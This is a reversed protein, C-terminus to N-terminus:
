VEVIAQDLDELYLKIMQLMFRDTKDKLTLEIDELELAKGQGLYEAVEEIFNECIQLLINSV